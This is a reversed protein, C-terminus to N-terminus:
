RYYGSELYSQNREVSFKTAYSIILESHHRGPIRQNQNQNGTAAPNQPCEKVPEEETHRMRLQSNLSVAGTSSNTSKGLWRDQLLGGRSGRERGRRMGWEWVPGKDATGTGPSPTAHVSAPAVTPAKLPVQLHSLPGLTSPSFVSQHKTCQPQLSCSLSLSLTLSHSLPPYNTSFNEPLPNKPSCPHTFPSTQWELRHSDLSQLVWLSQCSKHVADRCLPQAKIPPLALASSKPLNPPSTSSALPHSPPPAPLGLSSPALPKVAKSPPSWNM